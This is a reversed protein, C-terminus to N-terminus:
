NEEKKDEGKKYSFAFNVARDVNTVMLSQVDTKCQAKLAKELYDGFAEQDKKEPLLKAADMERNIFSVAAMLVVIEEM